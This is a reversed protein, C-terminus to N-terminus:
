ELLELNAYAVRVPPSASDGFVVSATRARLGSPLSVPREGLAALTGVRGAEPGRLVRVRKGVALAAGDTVAPPPTAAGPLPIILEPRRGLFRDRTVANLWADRGANTSLLALVPESFGGQGFSEVVLVPLSLKQAAAQLSAPMSGVVLGRVPVDALRKLTAAETVSGAVVLAGRMNMDVDAATLSGNPDKGALRLPAFDQQGNGWAGEVLAGTTEIVVGRSQLISVVTGPVGARLEYPRSIAAVLAKGGAAAVLRGEVPSRASRPVLGLLVKRQAIPEGAKVPDGDKKLLASDAKDPPLGLKRAIDVLKHHEALYTRAVVDSAELRQRAEVIVDGALPLLRERRLTALLTVHSTAPIYAM